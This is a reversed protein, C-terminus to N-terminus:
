RGTARNQTAPPEFVKSWFAFREADAVDLPGLREGLEMTTRDAEDFARWKPLGSGNPDGTKVFNAWYTSMAESVKRDAPEWPRKMVDLTGFVYPIESSHFAGFEPHEPWPIVRDFFYTFTKTRASRARRAAWLYTQVRTADRLAASLSHKAQEDTSAPYLRLFEEALSGFRGHAAATFAASGKATSPNLIFTLDDATFGILIPVDNAPGDAPSSPVVWGDAIPGFRSGSASVLDTAPLARLEAISKAHKAEAFAAGQQEATALPSPPIAPASEVIAARFLGRALPSAVLANVSMGGASQGAITVRAPDGGFAAINRRIWGLAAIQDLLGYNGSSHHESEATLEPHALFGLAGLRYNITVVVIGKAALQEGDYVPVAGSGETFAGGHIFVLVPRRERASTAGTWVNLYLCDENVPGSALFEETWPLFTGHINQVANPGFTDARRVGNWPAPPQPPRWRLSGVPPAAYPVGKYVTAGSPSTVGQLLGSEVRVPKEGAREMKQATRADVGSATLLTLAVSVGAIPSGLKRRM